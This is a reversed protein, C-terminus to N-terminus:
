DLSDLWNKMNEYMQDRYPFKNIYGWGHGGEPYIHFSVSQGKKKIENYLLISNLPNVISDDKSVAIFVPPTNSRIQLESSFQYELEKSVEKGLLNDHTGLHTLEKRMSVVPYFLLVFDPRIENDDSVMMTTALHGGASFGMLGIGNKSLNLDDARKRLAIIANTADYMPIRYDHHPMRYDLVAVTFGLRHLFPIWLFGENVKSLSSYGGGPLIMIAKKRNNICSAQFVHLTSGGQLSISYYHIAVYSVLLALLLLLIGIIICISQKVIKCNLQM